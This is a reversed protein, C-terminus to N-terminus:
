CHGPTGGSASCFDVITYQSRRFFYAESENDPNRLVADVHRPGLLAPWREGITGGFLRGWSPVTLGAPHPCM